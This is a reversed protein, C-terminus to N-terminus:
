VWGEGALGSCAFLALFALSCHTLSISCNVQLIDWCIVMFPLKPPPDKEGRRERLTQAALNWVECHSIVALVFQHAPFGFLTRPPRARLSILSNRYHRWLPFLERLKCLQKAVCLCVISERHWHDLSASLLVLAYHMAVAYGDGTDHYYPIM